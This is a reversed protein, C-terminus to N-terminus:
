ERAAALDEPRQGVPERIGLDLLDSLRRLLQSSHDQFHQLVLSPSGIALAIM